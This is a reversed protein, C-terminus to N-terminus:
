HEDYCEACEDYGLFQAGPNVGCTQCLFDETYHHASQNGDEEIALEMKWQSYSMVLHKFYSLQAQVEPLLATRDTLAQRVYDDMFLLPTFVKCVSLHKLTSRRQPKVTGPHLSALHRRRVMTPEPEQANGDNPTLTGANLGANHTDHRADTYSTNCGPKITGGYNM